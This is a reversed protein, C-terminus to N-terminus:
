FKIIIKLKTEDAEPKATTVLQVLLKQRRDVRGSTKVHNYM